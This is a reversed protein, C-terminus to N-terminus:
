GPDLLSRLLDAVNDFNAVLGDYRTMHDRGARDRFALSYRTPREIELYTGRFSCERGPSYTSCSSSGRM